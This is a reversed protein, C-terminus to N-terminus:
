FSIPFRPHRHMLILATVGDDITLQPYVDVTTKM